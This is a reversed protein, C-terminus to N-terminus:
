VNVYAFGKGRQPRKLYGLSKVPHIIRPPSIMKIVIRTKLPPNEDRTKSGMAKLPAM